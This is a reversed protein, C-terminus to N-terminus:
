PLFYNQLSTKFINLTPSQVVNQPLDNWDHATRIFYSYKLSDTRAHPIHLKLHHDNRGVRTAPQFKKLADINIVDNLLKYCMMLRCEKRRTVLNSLLINYNSHWDKCIFRVYRKQFNDLISSHSVRYPDWVICRYDLRSRILSIYLRKLVNEPCNRFNQKIQGMMRNCKSYVEHCQESWNLKNNIIVGLYKETIPTRYNTM